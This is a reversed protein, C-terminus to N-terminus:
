LASNGLGFGPLVHTPSVGYTDFLAFLKDNDPMEGFTEVGLDSAAHIGSTIFITDIGAKTAGVIDHHMSDGVHVVRDAGLAEICAQFHRIDPKGFVHHDVVVVSSAEEACLEQYRRAIGGPMFATGGTPTVVQEDPNACIMPINRKACERLMDDMGGDFTGDDIFTGLRVPPLNPGRNWVESGHLLLWDAEQISEAIRIHPGATELFLSLPATVRPNNAIRDDWTWFLVKGKDTQQSLFKSAEEGSTVAGGQFWEPRFGYKPLREMAGSAPASTNSLIMLKKGAKYLYEVAEIAGPLACQGNHLVGFQDLIFADYHEAISELSSRESPPSTVASTNDSVSHQNRSVLNCRGPLSPHTLAFSSIAASNLRMM